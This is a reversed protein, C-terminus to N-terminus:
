LEFYFFFFFFHLIFISFGSVVNINVYKDNEFIFSYSINTYKYWFSKHNYKNIKLNNIYIYSISPIDYM